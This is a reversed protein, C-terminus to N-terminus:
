ATSWRCTRSVQRALGADDLRGQRRDLRDATHGRDPRRAGEDLRHVRRRAPREGAPRPNGRAGRGQRHAQRLAEQAADRRVGGGRPRFPDRRLRRERERVAHHRLREPGEHGQEARVQSRSRAGEPRRPEVHRRQHGPGRAAAVDGVSERAEGARQRGQVLLRALESLRGGGPTPRGLVPQRLRTRALRDVQKAARHQKASALSLSPLAVALALAAVTLGILGARRRTMVLKM